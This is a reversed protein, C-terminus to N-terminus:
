GRGASRLSICGPPGHEGLVSAYYLGSQGSQSLLLALAVGAGPAHLVRFKFILQGLQKQTHLFTHEEVLALVIVHFLPQGFVGGEVFDDVTNGPPQLIGGLTPIGPGHVRSAPIGDDDGVGDDRLDLGDALLLGSVWFLIEEVGHQIM